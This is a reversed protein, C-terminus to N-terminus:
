SRGAKREKETVHARILARNLESIEQVLQRVRRHEKVWARVEEVLDVPILFASGRLTRLGVVERAAYAKDLMRARYGPLRAALELHSVPPTSYLGISRRAVEAVTGKPRALRTSAWPVFPAKM